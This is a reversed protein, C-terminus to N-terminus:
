KRALEMLSITKIGIGQEVFDKRRKKEFVM